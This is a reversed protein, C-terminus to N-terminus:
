LEIRYEILERLLATAFSGSPLSFTFQVQSAEAKMRLGAPIVRLARREAKLGHKVLGETILPYENVVSSELEAVAQGPVLSGAAGYMLGTLHIDGAALRSNLDEGSKQLFVSHSANLMILEGSSLQDWSKDVVRKALIKNFLFSRASSLYIGRQHKKPKIEGNFWDLAKQVNTGDRGFRQEGFFNPFGNLQVNSVAKELAVSDGVVDTLTIVFQNGQHIGRRLKKRHRKQKLVTLQANNLVSFDIDANGPLHVSFWQRTVANRDKMGSYSVLKIAVKAIKALQEAVFQTNLLRKEIWVFIHEGEGEPEFGLIEEVQFFEPQQRLVGSIAPKEYARPLESLLPPLNM